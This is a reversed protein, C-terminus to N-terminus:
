EDLRLRILMDTNFPVDHQDLNSTIIYIDGNEHQEVARIRGFVGQLHRSLEGAAVSGEPSQNITLRWLSQSRLGAFLFSGYWPGSHLFAAGSPAWTYDDRPEGVGSHILPAEMGEATEDGRIIPWGYNKGAEIHNVEDHCCGQPGSPGHDTGLMVATEPHWDFGQTNRLGYAFINSGPIPNDAPIEADRTMRLLSGGPDDLDQAVEPVHRESVSWYLMGDPGFRIQATNHMSLGKIGELLVRDFVPTQTQPDDTYRVLRNLDFESDPDDYSYGIYVYRNTGFDPDLTIGTVGSNTVPVGAATSVSDRLDLWPESRLQDNQVIRILGNRESIFIRGDPAFAMQWPIELADTVITYSFPHHPSPADDSGAPNGCSVLFVAALWSLAARFSVSPLHSPAM